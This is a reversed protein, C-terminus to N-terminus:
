IILINKIITKLNEVIIYDVDSSMNDKVDVYLPYPILEDTLCSFVEVYIRQIIGSNKFGIHQCDINTLKM